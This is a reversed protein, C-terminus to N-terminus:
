GVAFMKYHMQSSILPFSIRYNHLPSSLDISRCRVSSVLNNVPVQSASFPDWLPAPTMANSSSSSPPSADVVQPWQNPAFYANSSLLDTQSHPTIPIADHSSLPMTLQPFAHSYDPHPSPPIQLEARVSELSSDSERPSPAASLPPSPGAPGFRAEAYYSPIYSANFGSHPLPQSTNTQAVTPDVVPAAARARTRSRKPQREKDQKKELRQREKQEKTKPRFRYDPYRTHHEAKKMEARREYEARTAESENRWQESIAKSVDAQTRLQGPLPPPMERVRDSRYLIWANPPRPPQDDSRVRPSTRVPGTM